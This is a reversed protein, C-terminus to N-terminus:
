IADRFRELSIQRPMNAMEPLSVETRAEIQRVFASAQEMQDSLIQRDLQSQLRTDARQSTLSNVPTELMYLNATAVLRKALEGSHDFRWGLTAKIEAIVDDRTSTESLAM